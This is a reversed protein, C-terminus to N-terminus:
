TLAVLTVRHTRTATVAATHAAAAVGTLSGLDSLDLTDGGRVLTAGDVRLGQDPGAAGATARAEEATIRHFVAGFADAIL